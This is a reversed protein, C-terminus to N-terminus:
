LLATNAVPIIEEAEQEDTNNKKRKEQKEQKKKRKEQKKKDQKDKKDKERKLQKKMRKSAKEKADNLKALATCKKILQAKATELENKVDRTARLCARELNNAILKYSAPASTLIANTEKMHAVGSLIRHAMLLLPDDPNDLSVPTGPTSPDDPDDPNDLSVPTGPGDLDETSLKEVLHQIRVSLIANLYSKTSEDPPKHSKRFDTAAKICAAKIDDHWNEIRDVVATLADLGESFVENDVADYQKLDAAFMLVEKLTVASSIVKAVDSRRVAGAVGKLAVVHTKFTESWKGEAAVMLEHNWLHTQLTIAAGRLKDDVAPTMSPGMSVDGSPSVVVQNFTQVYACVAKLAMCKAILSSKIRELHQGIRRVAQDPYEQELRSILSIAQQLLTAIRKYVQPAEIKDKMSNKDKLFKVGADIRKIQLDIGKWLGVEGMKKPIFLLYHEILHEIRISLISNLVSSSSESPLKFRRRFDKRANDCAARIDKHLGQVKALADKLVSVGKTFDGNAVVERDKLLLADAYSIAEALSVASSRVKAVNPVHLEKVAKAADRVVTAQKAFEKSWRGEETVMMNRKHLCIHLIHVEGQLIVEVNDNDSWYDTELVKELLGNDIASYKDELRESILAAAELYEDDHVRKRNLVIRKEWDTESEGDKRGLHEQASTVIAEAKKLSMHVKHKDWPRFRKAGYDPTTTSAESMSLSFATVTAALAGIVLAAATDGM